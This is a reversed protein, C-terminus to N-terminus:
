AYEKLICYGLNLYNIAAGFDYFKWAKAKDTTHVPYGFEDTGSVYWKGKSVIWYVM